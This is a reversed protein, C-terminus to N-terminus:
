RFHPMVEAIFAEFADWDVPPRIAINVGQAGAAAYQQLREVAQAPTGTLMGGARQVGFDGMRQRHYAAGKEDAGMYFGLNVSRMIGAPDRGLKECAADLKRTRDAHDEPSVYPTNFGDAYRAALRPTRHEGRGGIWIRPRAQVPKPACVAGDLKYFEGHHTVSPQEFLARIVQVAEEMQDLRRGIPPFTYGFEEFEEKFWGAGLGLELRGQSIHDITVAAKALMGPSRFLTCFVLCGVRVQRTLAALAAMSAVGEFCPDERERLPNAYFHDWVSVWYFGAEDARQWLRKLEQMPIDQPGTHLGIKM